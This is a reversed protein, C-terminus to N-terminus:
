RRGSRWEHSLLWVLYLGGIAATMIGVPLQVPALVRQAALDAACLLVAGMLASPLLSVGAAGSLRRALQPAALAVFSVPGASATAVAALLVACVVLLARSREVPVGLAKASDDGSEMLRLHRGMLLVAPLLLGVAAAAPAFQEWGRGNLSGTLWVAAAQAEDISAETMLYANVSSLLAGAAIGVVILRYGQVGRRYALLYVVLATAFGGGVAGLAVAFPGGGLVLIQLLAGTAAGTEFGILDPSGLPNRALSQFVAGSLGLAAGVVIGLALRPLRLDNVVYDTTGSGHGALTRLVDAPSVQFDGTGLAAVGVALLAALLGLGATLPRRAVRLRLPGLRIRLGPVLGAPDIAGPGSLPPLPLPVVLDEPRSTM